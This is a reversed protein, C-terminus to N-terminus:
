EEFHVEVRRNDERKKSIPKTEGYGVCKIKESSVGKKVLYEKVANARKESLIQNSKADGEDDTHGEIRIHLHPNKLLHAALSDLEPTYPKLEHEKSAFTQNKLVLTSYKPSNQKSDTANNLSIEGEHMKQLIVTIESPQNEIKLYGTIAITKLSDLSKDGAKRIYGGVVFSGAKPQLYKNPKTKGQKSGPLEEFSMKKGTIVGVIRYTIKGDLITTCTGRITDGNQIFKCTMKGDYRPVIVDINKSDYRVVGEWTGSLSIDSSQAFTKLSFLVFIIFGFRLM